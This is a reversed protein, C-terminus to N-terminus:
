KKGRKGPKTMKKKHATAYFISKGKKDGYQKKMSSMVKEGKGKYYDALPM